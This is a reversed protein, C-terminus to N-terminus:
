KPVEKLQPKVEKEEVTAGQVATLLNGLAQVSQAMQQLTGQMPVNTIIQVLEQRQQESDVKM